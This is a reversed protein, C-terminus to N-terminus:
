FRPVSGEPIWTSRYDPMNGDIMQNQGNGNLWINVYYINFWEANYGTFDFLNTKTYKLPISFEFVPGSFRKKVGPDFPSTKEVNDETAWFNSGNRNINTHLDGRLGLKTGSYDFNIEFNANQSWNGDACVLLFYAKQSDIVSKIYALDFGKQKADGTKGEYFVPINEWDTTRGDIRITGDPVRPTWPVKRFIQETIKNNVTEVLLEMKESNQDINQSYSLLVGETVDLMCSLPVKSLVWYMNEPDTYQDIFKIGYITQDTILQDIKSTVTELGDGQDRTTETFVSKVQTSFQQGADIISKERAKAPDPDTGIGYFYNNELPM